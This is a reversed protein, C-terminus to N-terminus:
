GRGAMVNLQDEDIRYISAHREALLPRGGAEGFRNLTHFVLMTSGTRGRRLKAGALTSTATIREGVRLLSHVEISSGGNLSGAPKIGFRAALNRPLEAVAERGSAEPEESLPYTGPYFDLGHLPFLPPAVAVGHVSSAAAKPDFHVPRLGMIADAFLRLRGLDLPYDSTARDLERGVCSRIRVPLTDEASDIHTNLRLDDPFAVDLVDAPADDGKRFLVIASGVTTARDLDINWIEINVPVLTHEDLNRLEKVTGRVELAQGALDMGKFDYDIRWIWGQGDFAETLFQALLHQKLAGNILVGPLKAVDRAYSEDFHIRAWNEQAACWRVLHANTFRGKRLPPLLSGARLSKLISASM